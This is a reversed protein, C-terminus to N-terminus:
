HGTASQLAAAIAANGTTSPHVGDLTESAGNDSGKLVIAEDAGAHLGSRAPVIDNVIWTHLDACWGDFGVKWPLEIYIPVAPWQARIQDIISLYQTTWITENLPNSGSQSAGFGLDNVGLTTVVFQPATVGFRSAFSLAAPAHTTSWQAVTTGGVGYNYQQWYQRNDAVAIGARLTEIWTM